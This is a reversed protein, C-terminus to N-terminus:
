DAAVLKLGIVGALILAICLLRLPAASDGLALVGVIATGAAGIGTWVAYGTGMPLTRMSFSLLVVSSLGTAVTFLAPVLRTFGESSKMAFAFAIELLGAIGLLTWAM